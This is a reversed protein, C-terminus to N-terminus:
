FIIFIITTVLSNPPPMTGGGEENAHVSHINIAYCKLNVKNEENKKEFTIKKEGSANGVRYLDEQKRKRTLM